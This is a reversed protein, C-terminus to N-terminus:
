AAVLDRLRHTERAAAVTRAIGDALSVSPRWGLENRIRSIDAVFDGTEVQLADGPWPVSRYSGSRACNVAQEVFDIIRAGVGSGINYARGVALPSAAATLLADVADDVYVYDRFQTGGGFLAVDDGSVISDVMWNAINYRNHLAPAHPGYPNSLRAIISQVGWREYYYHCYDEAARKHIGYLSLPERPHEESVPLRAARGYVLRSSAFCFRAHSGTKRIAELLNLHALCNITLSQEHDAFGPVQGSYAALHFVYDFGTAILGAVAQEDRVDGVAHTLDDASGVVIGRALSTVRAGGAALRRCVHSGIFGSGGTVLVRKGAYANRTSVIM